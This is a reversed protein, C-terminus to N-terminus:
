AVTINSVSAYKKDPDNKDKRNTILGSITVDKIEGVLAGINAAGFHEQFPVLFKKLNGLGFENEIFFATSFKTGPAVPKNTADSLEGTEVVAFSAEVADKESIRKVDLTVSLIYSGPPPAEFAPLDALDDISASFLSEMSSFSKQAESM